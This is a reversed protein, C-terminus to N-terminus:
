QHQANMHLLLHRNFFPVLASHAFSPCPLLTNHWHWTAEILPCLECQSYQQSRIPFGGCNLEAVVASVSFSTIICIYIFSIHINCFFQRPSSGSWRWTSHSSVSSGQTVLRGFRWQARWPNDILCGFIVPVTHKWYEVSIVGKCRM